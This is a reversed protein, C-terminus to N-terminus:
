FANKLWTVQPNTIDGELAIIDIRCPTDHENLGSQNLYFSISHKIKKQKSLPIASIAGGFAANKRYKVEIFVYIEQDKMVLDIEGQRCHVNKDVPTLGQEALYLQAFQETLDGKAKTTVPSSKLKNWLM